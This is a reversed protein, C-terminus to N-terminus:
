EASDWELNSVRASEVQEGVMTARIEGVLLGLLVWFLPAIIVVGFCFFVQVSYGLVASGLVLIKPNKACRKVAQWGISILFGLYSLFGVLGQTCLYHLYENHAFDLNRNYYRTYGVQYAFKKFTSAFTGPGTGIIPNEMSMQLSTKWIGIRHNGATMSLEGRAFEYLDKMLGNQAPEELLFRFYCFAGIVAVVELVVVTLRLVKYSLKKMEFKETLLRLVLLVGAIAMGLFFLKQPELTTYTKLEDKVYTYKVLGTLGWGVAITIGIDLVRKLYTRNRLLLPTMVGILAALGVVAMDVKLCIMLYVALTHALLFFARMPKSLRFVVYGVGLLPTAMCMFGGMIDANGITSYFLNPFGKYSSQPYLYLFNVGFLQVIGIFCMVFAVIAFAYLHAREFRCFRVVLFFLAAYALLFLWGDHRGAGFFVLNLGDSNQASLYPSALCSVLGGVLFTILLFDPLYAKWPLSYYRVKRMRKNDAFALAVMVAFGALLVLFCVMKMDTINSYDTFVFLPFFCLYLYLFINGEALTCNSYRVATGLGSIIQQIGKRLENM